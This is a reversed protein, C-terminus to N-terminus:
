SEIIVASVGGRHNNSAPDSQTCDSDLLESQGSRNRHPCHASDHLLWAGDSEANEEDQLIIRCRCVEIGSDGTLTRLRFRDEKLDEEYSRGEIELVSVSSSFATHKPRPLTTIPIEPIAEGGGETYSSSEAGKLSTVPDSHEPATEQALSPPALSEGFDSPTSARSTLGDMQTSPYFFASPGVGAQPRPLPLTVHDSHDPPPALGSDSPTTANSMMEDTPASSSFFSSSESSFSSFTGSSHSSPLAGGQLVYAASYAPPPALIESEVEEYSPLKAPSVYSIHLQHHPVTFARHYVTLEIERQRQQQLRHKVRRHRLVCCCSLVMLVVWLLWFWWLDYYIYCGTERCCLTM